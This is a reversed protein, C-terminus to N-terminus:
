GHSVKILTTQLNSQSHNDQLNYVGTKEHILITFGNQVESKSHHKGGNYCEKHM